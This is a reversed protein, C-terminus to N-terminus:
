IDEYLGEESRMEVMNYEIGPDIQGLIEQRARTYM